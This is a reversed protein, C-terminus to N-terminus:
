IKFNINTYVLSIEPIYFSEKTSIIEILQKAWEDYSNAGATNNKVAGPRIITIKPLSSKHQLQKSSEELSQKQIRYLSIDIENHETKVDVPQTTMHTSINWIWKEKGQWKKWVEFLLETQAFQSQANNIFIDCPDILNATHATRRINEGDRRSIGVVEHGRVQLIEALSKGIGSTHGTIAIKM